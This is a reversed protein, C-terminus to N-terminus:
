RGGRSVYHRLFSILAGRNVLAAANNYAELFKEVKRESGAGDVLESLRPNDELCGVGTYQAEDAAKGAKLYELAQARFKKLGKLEQMLPRYTGLMKNAIDLGANLRHASDVLRVHAEAAHNILEKLDAKEKECDSLESPTGQAQLLRPLFYEWWHRPSISINGKQQRKPSLPRSFDNENEASRKRKGSITLPEPEKKWFLMYPTFNHDGDNKPQLAEKLNVVDVREDDHRVWTGAPTKAVTIYHGNSLKGEHHIAAILSYRFIERDKVPELHLTSTYHVKRHDKVATVQGKRIVSPVTRFRVFQTCLFEPARRIEKSYEKVVKKKNCTESDCEIGNKQETAFYQALAHEIDPNNEVALTLLWSFDNIRLTERCETCKKIDNYRVELIRDLRVDMQRLHQMLWQYFEPADEHVKM